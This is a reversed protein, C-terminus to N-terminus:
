SGTLAVLRAIEYHFSLGTQEAYHWARTSYRGSFAAFDLVVM